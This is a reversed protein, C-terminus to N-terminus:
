QRFTRLVPGQGNGASEPAGEFTSRWPNIDMGGRRTYLAQVSFASLGAAQLDCFLREVCQEHYEQHNRFGCLYTLLSAPEVREAETCLVITAWDPQGTVPCLSRLSHSHLVESGPEGGCVQLLSSDPRDPVRAVTETDICQGPMARPALSPDELSLLSISVDGQAVSALDDALVRQLDDVSEFSTNNLSNLYLKFSKSEVLNQTTAAFRFRGVACQPLGDANLWSVEWAHWLDDGQFPLSPESGLGIGLTHRATERPIPFLIEPAYAEPVDSNRGLLM